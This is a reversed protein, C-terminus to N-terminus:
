QYRRKGCALMMLFQIETRLIYASSVVLYIVGPIMLRKWDHPVDQVFVLDMGDTSKRTKLFPLAYQM